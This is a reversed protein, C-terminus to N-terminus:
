WAAPLGGGRWWGPILQTAQLKETGGLIQAEVRPGTGGGSSSCRQAAWLKEIGGPAGERPWQREGRM